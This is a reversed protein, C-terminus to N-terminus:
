MTAPRLIPRNMTAKERDALLMPPPQVVPRACFAKPEQPKLAMQYTSAADMAMIGSAYKAGLIRLVMAMVMGSTTPRRKPLIELLKVATRLTRDRNQRVEEWIAAEPVTTAVRVPIGM